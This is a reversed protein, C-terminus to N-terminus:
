KTGCGEYQGRKPDTASSRSPMPAANQIFPTVRPGHITAAPKPTSSTISNPQNPVTIPSDSACRYLLFTSADNRQLM